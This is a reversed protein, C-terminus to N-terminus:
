LPSETDVIAFSAITSQAPGYRHTSSCVNGRSKEHYRENVVLRGLLTAAVLCRLVLPSISRHQQSFVGRCDNRVGRMWCGAMTADQEIV